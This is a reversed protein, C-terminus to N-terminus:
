IGSVRRFLLGFMEQSVRVRVGVREIDVAANNHNSKVRFSFLYEGLRHMGMDTEGFRLDNVFLLGDKQSVCFYGKTFWILEDLEGRAVFSQILDHNKPIFRFEIRQHRDLLSYM